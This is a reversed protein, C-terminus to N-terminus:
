SASGPHLEDRMDTVAAKLPGIRERCIVYVVEADVDFYRHSLFDRMGKAGKWDMHPHRVMMEAGGLREFNKLSEGIAILMM